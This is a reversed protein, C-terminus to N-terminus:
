GPWALVADLQECTALEADVRLHAVRPPDPRTAHATGLDDRPAARERLRRELVEAPADLWVVRPIAPEVAAALADWEPGGLLEATFPAVLVVSTGVAVQERALDRVVAYRAPRVTPRRAADNWHGGPAVEDNMADLLANTATDIDILGARLRAALSRGLTSKGSGAPGAVLWVRAATM